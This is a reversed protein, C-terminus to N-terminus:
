LGAGYVIMAHIGFTLTSVLITIVEATMSRAAHRSIVRRLYFFGYALALLGPLLFTSLVFGFTELWDGLVLFFEKQPRPSLTELGIDAVVYAIALLSAVYTAFLALSLTRFGNTMCAAETAGM